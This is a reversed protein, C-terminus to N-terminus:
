NRRLSKAHRAAFLVIAGLLAISAPEPVQQTLTSSASFNVDAGGALVITIQEGLSFPSTLGSTITGSQDNSFAGITVIGPTGTLTSVGGICPTLSSGLFICSKFSLFDAAGAVAVTGGIHSLFDVGPPNTPSTFGDSGVQITISHSVATVNALNVTASTELALLPNGPSNSFASLTTIAIPSLTNACTVSPGAIPGCVVPAGGDISYTIQISAQALPAMTAIALTAVVFLIRM